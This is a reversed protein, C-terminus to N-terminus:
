GAAAIRGFRRQRRAYEALAAELDERGFDPWPVPLFVLEAYSAEWLLFDSLRQEGGTRILLDVDPMGLARGLDAAPDASGHGMQRAARAIEDRSSYDLAIRLHLDRGAATASEAAALARVLSPPLRDRRGIATLRIGQARMREAEEELYTHLLAFLANVETRPRTWNDSSFAYLTVLPLGITRAAEITRRVADAGRRHGAIRPLGRAEAWRGNGDLIIATHRPSSM